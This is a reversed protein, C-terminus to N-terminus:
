EKGQRDALRDVSGAEKPLAERWTGHIEVILGLPGVGIVTFQTATGSGFMKITYHPTEASDHEPTARRHVDFSALLNTGARSLQGRIVHLPDGGDVLHGKVTVHGRRDENLAVFHFDYLGDKM